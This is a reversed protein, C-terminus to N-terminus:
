PGGNEVKAGAPSVVYWEGGFGDIGEGNTQGRKADGTYTYLPHGNYTVQLTGNRRRTTGLKRRDAGRGAKPAGSTTVSPWVSACAGYCTSKRRTDREFLYLTRGQGNVLIRGLSSPAAAITARGAGTNDTDSGYAVGYGSGQANTGSGGYASSGGCGAALAAVAVAAGSAALTTRLRKM